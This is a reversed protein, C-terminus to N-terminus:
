SQRPGVARRLFSVMSYGGETQLLPGAIVEIRAVDEFRMVIQGRMLRVLRDYDIGTEHAM